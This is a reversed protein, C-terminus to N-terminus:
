GDMLHQLHKEVCLLSWILLRRNVRGDLHERVLGQVAKRNLVEYLAAQGNFLVSKVYEISDGRFWSADPGSFGQKPAQSVVDPVYKELAQRLIVKGDRTRQWYKDAKRGPENEDLPQYQQLNNLKLRMPLRMAFDVLDNDLYPVRVELGHAMSLKDEVMLLGHLFTRAEFYLSLNVYDEPRTRPLSRDPFVGRFIEKPDVHRVQDWIPSLVNSLHGDPVLRQWFNYYKDIYGDFGNGNLGRYYRWPYGGFM